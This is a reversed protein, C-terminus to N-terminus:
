NKYTQQILFKQHQTKHIKVSDKSITDPCSNWSKITRYLPSHQFKSTRHKPLNLKGQTANRTNSTPRQQLYDANNTEPNLQLLSKHTFVAEHVTRRQNLNLFKLQKMSHTASDYKRHGTISKVAFNQAVQLKQSNVKGCGGWVIDAYDFNPTVLSNYLNVKLKIPLLHNVRHLNRISNLSKQKVNKVQKDWNLQDDIWVGLIKIHPKPKIAIPKGDDKVRIKINTLNDKRTNIILVETKGINNKMSNESFWKQAITIAEETNKILQELSTAEILLQTDDAYAVIKCKGEFEKSIDNTFCLFLLPGIISGQPVGSTIPEEESTFKRFKSKQKRNTLYSKIWKLTGESLNLKALKNLMLAHSISDFAKSLDLSAIAAYKKRDLLKYIYNTVLTLCTQTSHGKRYAHQHNSLLKNKELHEVLQDTAAREFVKSITPLISIPRYNSIKDPDDKKHLAKITAKKMCDPFTCTEYGINIIQALVPALVESADKILKAGVEDAGTAVDKRIKEILKKISTNTEPKFVFGKLGCFDKMQTTINLKDQIESGITAFYKNYTNATEQTIGEPEETHKVETRNTILNIASWCKKPDDKYEALKETIYKKKLSRKMHSIKNSICKIRIKFSDLGYYYYDSILENKQAIIDRLESTYWPIYNRRERVKTIVMPAHQDATYKITHILEETAANVDKNEIHTHINSQSINEELSRSYEIADYNRYNRHRVTKEEPKEKQLNLKIYTGLHDSIGICTGVHKILQNEPSAWVHDIVTPRGSTTDIRTPKKVFQSLNYSSYTENLQKTLNSNIDSDDINFDGTIILQNSIECAKRVNEEIKSEGNEVKMMDTYEPRYITGLMFSQKGKVQVWLIEEIKDTMYDKRELKLHSKYIIAIGGGKNKGYKQKFDESRDKRIIKYGDPVFGEAPVSSDFWTETLCLIDPDLKSIIHLIEEFKNCISRCNLNLILMELLSTKIKSVDDPQDKESLKTSDIHDVNIEEDRRCKNCTWNFHPKKKLQNYLTPTMDSCSRHIWMDCLDCSVAQQMMKVEKSCGRCLDKGIYEKSSIKPLEKMLNIDYNQSSCETNIPNYTAHSREDQMLNINQMHQANAEHPAILHYRNPSLLQHLQNRKDVHNPKCNKNPCIWQFSFDPYIGQTHSLCKMHCWNQCSQCQLLDEDKQFEKTCMTCTTKSTDPKAPKPGPHPNIDNALIILLLCLMRYHKETRPNLKNNRMFILYLTGTQLKLQISSFQKAPTKPEKLIDM